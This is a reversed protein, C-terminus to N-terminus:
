FIESNMDVIKGTWCLEFKTYQELGINYHQGNEIEAKIPLEMESDRTSLSRNM